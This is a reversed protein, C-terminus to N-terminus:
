LSLKTRKQRVELVIRALIRGARDSNSKSAEQWWYHESNIMQPPVPISRPREPFKFIDKTM